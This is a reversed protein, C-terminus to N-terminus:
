HLNIDNERPNDLYPEFWAGRYYVSEVGGVVKMVVSQNRIRSPMSEVVRVAQVADDYVQATAYGYPLHTGCEFRIKDNENVIAFIEKM